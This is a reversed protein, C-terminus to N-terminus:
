CIGNAAGKNSTRCFVYRQLHDLFIDLARDWAVPRIHPVLRSPLSDFHNDEAPDTRLLDEAEARAMARDAMHIMNKHHPSLPWDLGAAAHIAADLRETVTNLHPGMIAKLPHPIDGIYAEHADHLLAYAQLPQPMHQAMLFSHQAVSYFLNTHGTWRCQKALSHAIVNFDIDEPQPDLLDIMKGTATIRRCESLNAPLEPIEQNDTMINTDFGTAKVESFVDKKDAQLAKESINKTSDM